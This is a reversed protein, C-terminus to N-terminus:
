FSCQLGDREKSYSAAMEGHGRRAQQSLTSNYRDHFRGLRPTRPKHGAAGVDCHAVSRRARARFLPKFDNSDSHRDEAAECIGKGPKSLCRILNHWGTTGASLHLFPHAMAPMGRITGPEILIFARPMKLCNGVNVALNPIYEQPGQALQLLRLAAETLRSRATLVEDPASLFANAPAERAFSPHPLNSSRFFDSITKVSETAEQAFSELPSPLTGNVGNAQKKIPQSIKHNYNDEIVEPAPATTQALVGM